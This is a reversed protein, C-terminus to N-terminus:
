VQALILERLVLRFMLAVRTTGVNEAHTMAIDIAASMSAHTMVPAARTEDIRKLAKCPVSRFPEPLETVICQSAHGSLVSLLKEADKDLGIGVMAVCPAAPEADDNFERLVAELDFPFHAGDMVVSAPQGGSACLHFRETRGPLGAAAPVRPHILRADVPLSAFSFVAPQGLYDLVAGEMRTNIHEIRGSSLVVQM